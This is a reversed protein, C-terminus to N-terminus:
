DGKKKPPVKPIPTKGREIKGTPVKPHPTKGGTVKKATM